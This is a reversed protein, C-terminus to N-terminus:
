ANTPAHSEKTEENPKALLGKIKFGQPYVEVVWPQIEWWIQLEYSRARALLNVSSPKRSNSKKVLIRAWRLDKRQTTEKDLFVFGGCRDGVKKLIDETWLHLPLGFVRIWVEPDQDIRGICGTSPTWWELHMVEGRFIRSGNEMVWYAEEM